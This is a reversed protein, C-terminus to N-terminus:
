CDRASDAWVCSPWSTRRTLTCEVVRFVTVTAFGHGAVGNRSFFYVHSFWARCLLLLFCKM